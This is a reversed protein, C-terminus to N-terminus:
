GNKKEIDKKKSKRILVYGGNNGPVAGRVVLLENENDIKAIQLNQVTVKDFGMRGPMNKGKMIRGPSTGAGNSGIRRHSMSGHSAPGGSWNHRKMGGQFGKGKSVGTVDVYEGESFINVKIEDGPKHDSSGRIEKIFVYPKANAKKLHGMVPKSARTEKLLEFGVQIAEYGDEEKTKCQLVVCPGAEIVTVPVVQGNKSFMQTMGLKRGVIGEKM